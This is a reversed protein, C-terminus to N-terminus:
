MYKNKWMTNVTNVYALMMFGTVKSISASQFGFLEPRIWSAKNVDITSSILSICKGTTATPNVLLERKKRKLLLEQEITLKWISTSTLLYVQVAFYFFGIDLAAKYTFYSLKM